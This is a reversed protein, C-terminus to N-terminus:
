RENSNGEKILKINKNAKVIMIVAILVCTLCVALGLLINMIYQMQSSSNGDFQSFMTIQLSFLSMLARAFCVNKSASLIPSNQKRFKFVNIIAIIFCYFTYAAITITMIEGGANKGDSILQEILGTMVTSMLLMLVACIRYSKFEYVLRSEENEKKKAKGYNLVMIFRMASFIFNYVALTIQWYSKQVIATVFYFVSYVTNGALGIYLATHARFLRDNIYKNMVPIKSLRNIIFATAKPILYALLICFSYASFFYIFYSFIEPIYDTAFVLVLLVVTLVSCILIVIPHPFLLKNLLKKM